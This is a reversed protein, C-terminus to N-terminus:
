RDMGSAAVRTVARALRMCFRGWPPAMSAMLVVSVSMLGWRSSRIAMAAMLPGAESTRDPSWAARASRWRSRVALVVQSLTLWAKWEGWMFGTRSWNRSEAAARTWRGALMGTM